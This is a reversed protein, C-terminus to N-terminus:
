NLKSLYETMLSDTEADRLLKEDAIKSDLGSMASYGAAKAKEQEIKAKAASFQDSGMLSDANQMQKGLAQEAKATKYGADLKNAEHRRAYLENELFRIKDQWENSAAKAEEYEEQLAALNKRVTVQREVYKTASAKGHEGSQILAMIKQTLEQDIKESEKLKGELVSPRGVVSAAAEKAKRISKELDAVSLQALKAPNSIDNALGNWFARVNDLMRVM